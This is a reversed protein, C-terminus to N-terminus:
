WSAIKTGRVIALRSSAIRWVGRLQSGALFVPERAQTNGDAHSFMTRDNLFDLLEGPSATAYVSSFHLALVLLFSTIRLLSRSPVM